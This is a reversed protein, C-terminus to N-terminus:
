RTFYYMLSFTALWTVGYALAVPAGPGFIPERPKDRESKWEAPNLEILEDTKRNM